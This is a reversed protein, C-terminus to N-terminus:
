VPTASQWLGLLNGESDTFYAAFGMEGVPEKARVLAGGHAEVDALVADIDDVDITIVPSSVDPVRAFMGGNIFGPEEPMGQDGVPGTMALHYDLEPMGQLQWGFVDTYFSTARDVDDYPVEFHVVRGAM